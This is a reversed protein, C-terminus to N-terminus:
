GSRASRASGAGSCRPCRQRRRRLGREGGAGRRGLIEELREIRVAGGILPDAQPRHRVRAGDAAAALRRERADHQVRLGIPHRWIGLLAARGAQEVRAIVPHLLRLEDVAADPAFEVM